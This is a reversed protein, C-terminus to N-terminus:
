FITPNRSKKDNRSTMLTMVCNNDKKMDVRPTKTVKKSQENSQTGLMSDGRSGRLGRVGLLAM